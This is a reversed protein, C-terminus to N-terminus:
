FPRELARSRCGAPANVPNCRGPAGDPVAVFYGTGFDPDPVPYDTSVYQAGSELAADRQLTDGSRAQLTDADARTRVIYGVEVLGSIRGPDALPDNEKVFAADPDGPSADTFLVRGELAPSGARYADRKAGGNDLCFLVKGRSVGLPPWGLARVAEDLTARGRRVDDPTVLQEPPFVSRIEADLAAFEAVGIPVPITFDIIPPLVDDKAEVLIMIPLHGPHGDSWAKVGRLCEVFTVCTTEFDIDQLHLVKFGPASLAPIGSDPNEGILALGERRAYLGGMPDAFVDIEIQRIGQEGFQRSLLLHTYEIESFIPSFALLAAFLAPRPEIHYSNHSGLVQVQNLAVCDDAYTAALRAWRRRQRTTCGEAMGCGPRALTRREQAALRRAVRECRRAHAAVTPLNGGAASAAPLRLPSLTSVVLLATTLATRM